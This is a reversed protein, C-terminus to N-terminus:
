GLIWMKFLKFIVRIKYNGKIGWQMRTASVIMDTGLIHSVNGCKQKKGGVQVQESVQTATTRIGMSSGM